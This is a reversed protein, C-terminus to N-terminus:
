PSIKYDEKSKLDRSAIEMDRSAKNGRVTKEIQRIRKDVLKTVDLTRGINKRMSDVPDQFEKVM